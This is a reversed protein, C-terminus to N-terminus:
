TSGGAWFLPFWHLHALNKAVHVIAAWKTWFQPSWLGLVNSKPKNEQTCACLDLIKKFWPSSHFLENAHKMCFNLDNPYFIYINCGFCALNSCIKKRAHVTVANRAGLFTQTDIYTHEIPQKMCFKLENQDFNHDKCGLCALNISINKCAHVYTM